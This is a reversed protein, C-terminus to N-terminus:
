PIRWARRCATLPVAVAGTLAIAVVTMGNTSVIGLTAGQETDFLAVDGRGARLPWVEDLEHQQAMKCALAELGGGAFKRMAREAGGVNSYKGRFDHAMDTGTMAEVANCVHLACDHTGWQFPRLEVEALYSALREPWDQLRKM